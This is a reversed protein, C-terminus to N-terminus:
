DGPGTVSLVQVRRASAIDGIALSGPLVLLRDGLAVAPAGHVAFPLDPLPRWASAGAGLYEAGRLLAPPLLSEGGAVVVRGALVAAAHGSRAVAMTPGPRGAGSTPDIVTVVGHAVGSAPERGGLLWVEGAVVVAALHDRPAGPDIAVSSWTGSAPHYRDMWNEAQGLGGVLVIHDGVAVAAGTARARPLDALVQWRDSAPDYRWANRMPQPNVPGAPFGGFLWIAGAHAVMQAHDRPAPLDARRSWTGAAPDLRWFERHSTSMTSLGGAAYVQGDLVAAPWESRDPGLGAALSWTARELDLRPPLECTTGALRTLSALAMDGAPFAALVPVYGARGGDCDFDFRLEGWEFRQVADEDFGAGFRGGRTAYVQPFVLVGDADREGTGLMWYPAGDPDFSYWVMLARGDPLWQLSWGEGSRAPDFWSGSQGARGDPAPPADGPCPLGMASTIRQWPLTMQQGFVDFSLSGTQCDAFAVRARGVAQHVIQGPDFGPGFRGGTTLVVPDFDIGGADIRGVSTLWRQRGADDYTFWYLLAQQPSLIELMWGEGSRGPTYWHGSHQPGPPTAAAVAGACAALLVALLRVAAPVPPTRPARAPRM